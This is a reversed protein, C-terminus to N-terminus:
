ESAKSWDCKSTLWWRCISPWFCQTPNIRYPDELEDERTHALWTDFADIQVSTPPPILLSIFQIAKTKIIFNIIMGNVKPLKLHARRREWIIQYGIGQMDNLYSDVLTGAKQGLFKHDVIYLGPELDLGRALGIRALDTKAVRTLLDVTIPPDTDHSDTAGIRYEVGIVKGLSNPLFREQYANFAREAESRAEPEFLAPHYEPTFSVTKVDIQSRNGPEHYMAMFGHALTGAATNVSDEAGPLHDQSAEWNLRARNRCKSLTKYHSIGLGSGGFGLKYIM